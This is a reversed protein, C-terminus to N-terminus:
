EKNNWIEKDDAYVEITHQNDNGAPTLRVQTEHLIGSDVFGLKEDIVEDLGNEQILDAIGQMNAYQDFRLRYWVTVKVKIYNNM